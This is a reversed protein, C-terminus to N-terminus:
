ALKAYFDGASLRSGLSSNFRIYNSMDLDSQRGWDFCLELSLFLFRDSSHFTFRKNLGIEASNQMKERITQALRIHLATMLTPHHPFSLIALGPMDSLLWWLAGDAMSSM